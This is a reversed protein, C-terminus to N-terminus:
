FYPKIKDRRKEQLRIKKAKKGLTSQGEYVLRETHLWVLAKRRWNTRVSRELLDHTFVSATRKYIVLFQQCVGSMNLRASM